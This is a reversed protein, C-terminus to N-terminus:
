NRRAQPKAQLQKLWDRAADAEPFKPNDKLLSLLQAQANAPDHNRALAVAYHYRISTNKPSKVLAKRLLTLGRQVQGQEVLIWGLTDLIDTNEPALKYALEATAPARPDSEMFYLNALNNMIGANNKVRSLIIEYQAIAERNRKTSMYHEAAYTRAMLDNPHANLWALLRADAERNMGALKLSGHLKILTYTDDQLKLAQEYAKIALPIHKLYFQTDGENVYGMALDPHSAQIRRAYQLASAPKKEALELRFFTDLSPVHGPNLALAKQLSIRAENIKKESIKIMALRHYTDPNPSKLALKNLTSESGQADGSALQVVSMLNLAAPHDPNASLSKNAVERARALDKKALYFRVLAAHTFIAQSNSQAAKELWRLEERDDKNIAAIEAMAMMALINDPHKKLLQEFRQRALEPRKEQIDLKALSNAAPFYSSDLTLAQTFNKRANAIDHKGWFARGLYDYTVPNRPDLQALTGAAGLAKDYQKQELYTLALLSQADYQGSSQSAASQLQEIASLTNGVGLHALGLQTQLAGNKPDLRIARELLSSAKAHDNKLQYAESALALASPDDRMQLLPGLTELAKDPQKLRIQSLALAKRAQTNGPSRLLVRKLYSEAQQHSGLAQNTIGALMLSPLHDPSNQLISQLADRAEVHKKRTFLDLAVVFRTPISAPATKRLQEIDRSAATPNNQSLYFTARNFLVKNDHPDIKLAADFAQLAEPYRRELLHLDALYLYSQVRETPLKLAEQLRALAKPRDQTAIACQALGWYTQPIGTDLSLSKEFLGCAESTKRLQLLAHGRLQLIRAQNRPSMQSDGLNVEDLVRQPQDMLLLAEGLQPLLVERNGGLQLARGLEKEAEAGQSSKLYLQGLLQRAEVSNPNKQLANKLEIIGAKLNNKDEYDKARQILEQESANSTKECGTLTVSAAVALALALAFPHRLM